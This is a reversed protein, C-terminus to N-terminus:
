PHFPLEERAQGGGREPYDSSFSLINRIDAGRFRYISQDADGVVCLNGDEGALLRVLRYQAHNTDQYEDVLLYRVRDRYFRLVDEHRELLNVTQMILDDFDMTDNSKLREQYTAYVRAVIKERYDWARDAYEQPDILENKAASIANLIGRPEFKNVDMDLDKLTERVLAIQDATDAISFRGSYGLIQAHRRLIQVCASHFTGAWVHEAESGVLQLLREKMENAAKNTFTVAMIHWPPVNKERLLYAIRYTLVRTKGTGAGAIVLLPGDGYTVARMQAENLDQLWQM